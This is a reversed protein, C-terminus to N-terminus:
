YQNNIIITSQIKGKIKTRKREERKQRDYGEIYDFVSRDISRFLVNCM